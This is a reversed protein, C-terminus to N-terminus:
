GNEKKKKRLVGTRQMKGSGQVSCREQGNENKKKNCKRETDRYVPYKRAMQVKVRNRQQEYERFEPLSSASKKREANYQQRMEKCKVSRENCRDSASEQESHCDTYKKKARDALDKQSQLYKDVIAQAESSVNLSDVAVFNRSLLEGRNSM